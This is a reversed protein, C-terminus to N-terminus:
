KKDDPSLIKLLLNIGIIGGLIPGVWYIWINDFYGSAIATGFHRAPNLAAGTLPGTALIVLGLTLGVGFGGLGGPVKNGAATGIIGWMLFFTTLIEIGLGKTVSIGAGLAPTGLHVAAGAEAPFFSLLLFGAITAGVLQAIVYTIAKSAEIKGAVLFGITVAPNIHGGSVNMTASVAISLALGHAIAISILGSGTIQDAIISGGGIFVFFFTGIAEALASRTNDNM